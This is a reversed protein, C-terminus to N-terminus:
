KTIKTHEIYINPYLYRNGKAPHIIIFIAGYSM